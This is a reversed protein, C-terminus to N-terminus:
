IGRVDLDLSNSRAIQNYRDNKFLYQDLVLGSAPLLTLNGNSANNKIINTFNSKDITYSFIVLSNPHVLLSKTMNGVGPVIDILRVVASRDGINKADINIRLAGDKIIGYKRLEVYPGSVILKESKNNFEIGGDTNGISKWEVISSKEPFTYIGPKEPKLGYIILKNENGNLSFNTLNWSNDLTKFGPPIDEILNIGSINNMGNNKIMLTVFVLDGMYIKDPVYKNIEVLKEVSPRVIIFSFDTANYARYFIDKGIISASINFNKRKDVFPAKFRVNVITSENASLDPLERDFHETSFLFPLNLIERQNLLLHVDRLTAKGENRVSFNISIESGPLFTRDIHTRNNLSKELPLISLLPLPKGVVKTRITARQDVVVNVGDYAGINGRIEKLDKILFNMLPINNEDTVNWSDGIKGVIKSLVRGTCFPDCSGNTADYITIVTMNEYFDSAEIIFNDRNFHEGLGITKEQPDVWEINGEPYKSQGLDTQSSVTGILITSFISLLSIIILLRMLRMFNTNTRILM